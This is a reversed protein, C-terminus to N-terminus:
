NHEVAKRWVGSFFSSILVISYDRYIVDPRSIIRLKTIETRDKWILRWHIIGQGNGSLQRNFDFQIYIYLKRHRTEPIDTMSYAWDLLPFVFLKVSLFGISWIIKINLKPIPIVIHHNKIEMKNTVKVMVSRVNCCLLFCRGKWLVLTWGPPCSVDVSGSCWLEGLPVPFMWGELAGSNVWPVPFM